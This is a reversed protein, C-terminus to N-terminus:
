SVSLSFCYFKARCEFANKVLVDRCDFRVIYCFHFLHQALKLVSVLSQGDRFPVPKRASKQHMEHYNLIFNIETYLKKLYLSVLFLSDLWFINIKAHYLVFM